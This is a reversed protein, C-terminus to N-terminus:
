TTQTPLDKWRYQFLSSDIVDGFLVMRVARGSTSLIAAASDLFVMVGLLMAPLWIVTSPTFGDVGSDRAPPSVGTGSDVLGFSSFVFSDTIALPM